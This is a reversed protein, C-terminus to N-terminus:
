HMEVSAITSKFITEFDANEREEKSLWSSLCHNILESTKSAKTRREFKIIHQLNSDCPDKIYNELNERIANCWVPRAVKLFEHVVQVPVSTSGLDSEHQGGRGHYDSGGLKLLDYTDAFDSYVAHLHVCLTVLIDLLPFYYAVFSTEELQFIM